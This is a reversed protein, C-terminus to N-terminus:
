KVQQSEFWEFYQKSVALFEDPHEKALEEMATNLKDCLKAEDFLCAAKFLVLGRSDKNLTYLQAQRMLNNPQPTHSVVREGLAIKEALKEQNIPLLDFLMFEKADSFGFIPEQKQYVLHKDKPDVSKDIVLGVTLAVDYYKNLYYTAGAMTLLMFTITIMSMISKLRCLVKTDLCAICTAAIALFYIYWLPFESLSYLGTLAVIGIAFLKDTPFSLRIAILIVGVVPLTIILGLLGLEAAIQLFVSHAHSAYYFWRINEAHKIGQAAFNGWGSGTIPHEQFVLWAQHWLSLRHYISGSQFREIGSSSELLLSILWAGLQYGLVATVTVFIFLQIKKDKNQSFFVMIILAVTLLIIGARSGTMGNAAALIFLGLLLWIISLRWRYYVFFLAVVAMSLIYAAINPQNLNGYPNQGERLRSIGWPLDDANVTLQIGQIVATVLGVLLVIVALHQIFLPKNDLNYVQISLVTVLLLAVVPFVLSDMYIISNISPQIAVLVALGLWTLASVSMFRIPCMWLTLILTFALIIVALGEGFFTLYPEYHQNNLIGVAYGLGLGWGLLRNADFLQKTNYNNLNM